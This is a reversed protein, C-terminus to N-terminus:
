ANSDFDELIAYLMIGAAVALNLSTVKGQMPLRVIAECVAAQDTSLGERESGLLLILPKKYEGASRYDLKAHASTGYVHCGNDGAWRAFDSFSASVVPLRFIAGMSARVATPHYPDVGGNLLLLGNAGVADITRLITGVNGPDQPEVLAAGWVFRSPDLDELRLQPRDVIALIGQPNDKEALSNFVENSTAYCPIQRDMVTRLVRQSYDGKLLDPSYYVSEVFVNSELAAGVHHLGEVLFASDDGARDKHRRLARVRKIKPNTQSTIINV